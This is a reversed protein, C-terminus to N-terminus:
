WVHITKTQKSAKVTEWPAKMTVNEYMNVIYKTVNEKM